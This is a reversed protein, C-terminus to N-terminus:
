LWNHGGNFPGFNQSNVKKLVSFEIKDVREADEESLLVITAFIQDNVILSLSSGKTVIGGVSEILSLGSNNGHVYQKSSIFDSPAVSGIFDKGSTFDHNEGQILAGIEDGIEDVLKFKYAFRINIHSLRNVILRNNVKSFKFGVSNIKGNSKITKICLIENERCNERIGRATKQLLKAVSSVYEDSLTSKFKILFPLLKGNYYKEKYYSNNGFQYLSDSNGGVSEDDFLDMSLVELSHINQNSVIPILVVEDFLKGFNKSSSFAQKAKVKFEVNNVNKLAINLKGLMQTLKGIEVEVKAEVIYLGDQQKTDIVKFTKIYGNSYSLVEDKILKRNEVASSSVTYMGVVQSVAAKGANAQASEVTAGYGEVIVTEIKGAFSTTSILTILIFSLIKKM